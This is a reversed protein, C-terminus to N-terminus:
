LRFHQVLIGLGDFLDGPLFVSHDPFALRDVLRSFLFLFRRRGRRFLLVTSLVNFKQDDRSMGGISSNSCSSVRLLVERLGAETGSASRTRGARNSSKTPCCCRRPSPDGRLTKMSFFSIGEIIRQPGGPHPFVVIARM